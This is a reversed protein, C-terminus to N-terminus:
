PRLEWPNGNTEWHATCIREQAGYTKGPELEWVFAGCSKHLIEGSERLEHLNLM